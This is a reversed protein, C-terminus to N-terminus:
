SSRWMSSAIAATSQSSARPRPGTSGTPRQLPAKMAVADGVDQQDVLLPEDPVAVALDLEGGVLDAV